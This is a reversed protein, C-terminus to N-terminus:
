ARRRRLLAGLGGLALLSMTAPEPVIDLSATSDFRYLANDDTPDELGADTEGADEAGPAYIVLSLIGNNNDIADQAADVFDDTSTFTVDTDVLGDPDFGTLTTLADGSVDGGSTTLTNWTVSTEDFSEGLNKLVLDYEGLDQDNGVFDRITLSMNVDTVTTGALSSLDFQVVGRLKLLNSNHHWGVLMRGDPHDPNETDYNDNASGSRIYSDQTSNFVAGMAPSAAFAVLLMVGLITWKNRQM